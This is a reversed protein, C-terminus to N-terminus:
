VSFKLRKEVSLRLSLMSWCMNHTTSTGSYAIHHGVGLPLPSQVLIGARICMHDLDVSSRRAPGEIIYGAMVWIIANGRASRLWCRRGSALTHCSAGLRLAPCVCGVITKFM